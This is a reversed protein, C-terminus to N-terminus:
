PRCMGCASYGSKIADERRNFSQICNKCNYNRCNPSHFNHSKVNGHYASSGSVYNGASKQVYSSNKSGKRWQWPPIPDADKWLGLQKARARGEIDKWKGCFSARCYRLYQWALGNEILSQNVNVGDVTVVGVARGYRDTDYVEVQATKRATINSTHRKAARGFAQKSEPCDIGYFRIKHQNKEADLITITDGDAIGVVKGTITQASIQLPLVLIIILTLLYVIKNIVISNKM